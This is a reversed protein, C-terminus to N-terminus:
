RDQLEDADVTLVGSTIYLYLDNAAQTITTLPHVGYANRREIAMKVCRERLASDSYYLDNIKEPTM